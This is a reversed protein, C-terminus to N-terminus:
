RLLLFPSCRALSKRMKIKNKQLFVFMVSEKLEQVVVGEEEAHEHEEEATSKGGGGEGGGM